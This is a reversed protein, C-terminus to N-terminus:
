FTTGGFGPLTGGPIGFGTSGGAGFASGGAGTGTAGAGTGFAGVGMDGGVGFDTTGGAGASGAVGNDVGGSGITGVGTTGGSNGSAGAGPGGPGGVVVGTPGVCAIAADLVHAPAGDPLTADAGADRAVPVCDAFPPHENKGCSAVVISTMAFAGAVARLWARRAAPIDHEHLM